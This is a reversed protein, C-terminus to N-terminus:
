PCRGRLGRRRRSGLVGPPAARVVPIAHVAHMATALCGMETHDEGHTGLVLSCRMSPSGEFEIEYGGARSWAPAVDPSMWTVHEVAIASRGREARVGLKMAGVTGASIVGAAVHLDKDTVATERISRTVAIRWGLAKAIASATGIFAARSRGPDSLLPADSDQAHGYGMVDVILDRSPYGAYSLAERMVIENCDHSLRALTPTIAEGWVGPFLGVGLFSTGGRQCAADIARGLAQDVAYTDIFSSGTAIVDTGSALLDVVDALCDGPHKEVNGLDLAVHASLALLDDRSDTALIRTPKRGVLEGADKSVKSPDYVRVGVLDLDPADIIARLALSGVMGTAWQVARTKSM